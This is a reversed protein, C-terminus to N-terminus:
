CIECSLIYKYNKFCFIQKKKHSVLYGMTINFMMKLLGNSHNFKQFTIKIVIHQYEQEKRDINLSTFKM